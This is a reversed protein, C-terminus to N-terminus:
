NFRGVLSLIKNEYIQIVFYANSLMQCGLQLIIMLLNTFEGYGGCKLVNEDSWWIWLQKCVM